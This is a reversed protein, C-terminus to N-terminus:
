PGVEISVAEGKDRHDLLPCFATYIGVRLIVDLSGSTGADLPSQLSRAIEEGEIAFSHQETGTNAITFVVAGPPLAPSVAIRNDELAVAVTAGMSVEPTATAQATTLAATDTTLPDSVQPGEENRCGTAVLLSMMLVGALAPISKKSNREM